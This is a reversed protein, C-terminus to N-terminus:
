VCKPPWVHMWSSCAAVIAVVHPHALGCEFQPSPPSDRSHILLRAQQKSVQLLDLWHICEAMISKTEHGATLVVLLFHITAQNSNRIVLLSIFLSIVSCVILLRVDDDFHLLRGAKIEHSLKM